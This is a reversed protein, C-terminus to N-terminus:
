FKMVQLIKSKQYSVSTGGYLLGNRIDTGKSFKWVCESIQAVLERTPAIIIVHPQCHNEDYILQTPQKLLNHL